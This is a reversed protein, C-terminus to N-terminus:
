SDNGAKGGPYLWGGRPARHSVGPTPEDLAVQGSPLSAASSAPSPGAMVDRARFAAWRGRVFTAILSGSVTTRLCTWHTQARSNRFMMDYEFIGSTMGIGETSPLPSVWPDSHAANASARVM